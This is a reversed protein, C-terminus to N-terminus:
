NCSRCHRFVFYLSPCFIASFNAHHIRHKESFHQEHASESLLAASIHNDYQDLLDLALYRSRDSPEMRMHTGWYLSSYKLFPTGQFDLSPGTSLDKVAKFSLYTLCAEAIKSHPRDFLDARGSLYERLTFHILRITASGEDVTALGLCCGLVTWISPVNNTDIDTSGIEVALAHCIEDVGLLRESHSIWMLAAMGLGARDGKQAKIRGITADYADGLSVM